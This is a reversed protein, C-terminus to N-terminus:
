IKIYVNSYFKPNEGMEIRTDLTRDKFIKTVTKRKTYYKLM